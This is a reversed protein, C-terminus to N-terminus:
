AEPWRIAFYVDSHFALTIYVTWYDAGGLRGTNWIHIVSRESKM